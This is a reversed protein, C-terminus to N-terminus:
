TVTRGVSENEQSSAKAPLPVAQKVEEHAGALSESIVGTCLKALYGRSVPVQLVDDMWLEITTYSCHAKSKLWGVMALMRPGFLPQSRLQPCDPLYAEGDPSLYVRLRHETVHIPSQPLEIHQITEFQDTPTLGWRQVDKENIEYDIREDM